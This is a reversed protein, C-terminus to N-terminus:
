GSSDPNASRSPSQWYHQFGGREVLALLLNQLGYDRVVGHGPDGDAGLDERGLIEDGERRRGDAVLQGVQDAGAVQLLRMGRGPPDGGVAPIAVEDIEQHLRLRGRRPHASGDPLLELACRTADIPDQLLRRHHQGLDSLINREHGSRLDALLPDLVDVQNGELRLRSEDDEDEFAVQDLLLDDM